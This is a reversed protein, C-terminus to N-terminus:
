KKSGRDQQNSNTSTHNSLIIWDKERVNMSKYMQLEHYANHNREHCCTTQSQFDRSCLILPAPLLNVCEGQPYRHTRAWGLRGFEEFSQGGVQPPVITLFRVEHAGQTSPNTPRTLTHRVAQMQQSSFLPFQHWARPYLHNHVLCSAWLEKGFSFVPSSYSPGQPEATFKPPRQFTSLTGYVAKIGHWQHLPPLLSLLEIRPKMTLELSAQIAYYSSFYFSFLPDSSRRLCGEHFPLPKKCRGLASYYFGSKIGM